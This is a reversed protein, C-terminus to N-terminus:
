KKARKKAPKKAAKKAPKKPEEDGLVGIGPVVAYGSSVFSRALWDPMNYVKDKAFGMGDLTIDAKFKIKM